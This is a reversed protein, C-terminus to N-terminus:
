IVIHFGILGDVRRFVFPDGTIEVAQRYTRGIARDPSAKQAHRSRKYTEIRSRIRRRRRQSLNIFERPVIRFRGHLPETRAPEINRGVAHNPRRKGAPMERAEIPSFAFAWEVTGSRGALM